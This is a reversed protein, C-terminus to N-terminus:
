FREDSAKGENAINIIQGEHLLHAGLAVVIEGADVGQSVAVEERGISILEVARFRAKARNEVIWVGFGQGREHLSAVPLVVAQRASAGEGSLTITVTSGLPSLSADGQLVYRAEFTRSAPDAAESIQRLSAEATLDRGYLRASASSGLKPRIGEPLNLLAERPGDHALQVVAQGAAVVQGPEVLTRVVVGDADAMLVSYRSLNHSVKAQAEAAGLLASASDLAERARDYEQRSVADLKVLAAHRAEDAKAQDYRAQAAAVNAQEAALSLELDLPDLRMLIQGKRVRQGRDVARELVKGGVRFGLDSQVRAEVTGTFALPNSGATKARVVKVNPPRLRPDNVQPKSCGSMMLSLVISIGLPALAVRSRPDATAPITFVQIAHTPGSAQVSLLDHPATNM